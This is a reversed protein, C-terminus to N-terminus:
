SAEKSIRNLEYRITDEIVCIAVSVHTFGASLALVVVGLLVSYTVGIKEAMIQLFLASVCLISLGIYFLKRSLRRLLSLEDRINKRIDVLSTQALDLEKIASTWNSKNDALTAPRYISLHPAQSM